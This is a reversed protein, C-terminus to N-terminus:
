RHYCINDVLKRLHINTFLLHTINLDQQLICHIGKFDYISIFHVAQMHRRRSHNHFLILYNALSIFLCCLYWSFFFCLFFRLFIYVTSHLYCLLTALFSYLNITNYSPFLYSLTGSIQVPIYRFSVFLFYFFISFLVSFIQRFLVFFFFFGRFFHM